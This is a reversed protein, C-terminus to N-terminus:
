SFLTSYQKYQYFVLVMSNTESYLSRFNKGTPYVFGYKHLESAYVYFEHNNYEYCGRFYQREFEQKVCETAIHVLRKGRQELLALGALSCVDTYFDGRGRMENITLNIASNNQAVISFICLQEGTCIGPTPLHLNLTNNTVSLLVELIRQRSISKYMLMDATIEIVQAIVFVQFTTSLYESPQNLAHLRSSKIGPGNFVKFFENRTNLSTIKIYNIVIVKIHVMIFMIQKSTLTVTWKSPTETRNPITQQIAFFKTDVISYSMAAMVIVFPKSKVKISISPSFSYIEMQSHTGCYRDSTHTSNWLNLVEIFGYHCHPYSLSFYLNSVTLNLRLDKYLNFKYMAFETNTYYHDKIEVASLVADWRRGNYPHCTSNSKYYLESVETMPLVGLPRTAKLVTSKIQLQKVCVEALTM